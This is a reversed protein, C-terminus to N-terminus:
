KGTKKKKKGGKKKKKTKKGKPPWPEVLSKSAWSDYKKSLKEAIEPYKKILDNQETRGAEMDYLEWHVGEGGPKQKYTSVLKWKGERVTRNGEHEVFITRQKLPKNVFSPVLSVGDLDQIKEGAHKSPYKAGSVEIITQMIDVVHGVQQRLEGRVKIGKPWHTIFPTCMGGEHTYHKYKRYPTNTANAWAEGIRSKKLEPLMGGEACGGNDSMFMILTNDLQDTKRLFEVVRGVSQDMSDIMAAYISFIHSLEKRKNKDLSKWAPVQKPRKSLPWKPNVIGLKKMRAHREIRLEDWGKDYRGKYKKIDEEKAHLPWHPASHCLHLYFPKKKKNSKIFGIANDALADTFYYKKGGQIKKNDMCLTTPAFYDAAGRITGYFKDFGRQIPWNFKKPEPKNYENINTVHWKGVMYTSYGAPRLVEAITVSDKSLEGRYGKTGYDSTMHGIGAKHPTLGTLLSARTPCCRANNYFQTYLLGNKALGDINPTSVEAGYCGIDSYGMDDVLIVLINPRAANATHTRIGSLLGAIGLGKLFNRRNHVESMRMSFIVGLQVRWYSDSNGGSNYVLEIVRGISSATNTDGADSIPTIRLPPEARQSLAPNNRSTM